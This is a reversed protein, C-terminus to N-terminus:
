TILLHFRAVASGNREIVLEYVGAQSFSISQWQIWLTEAWGAHQAQVSALSRTAVVSGRPDRLVLSFNHSGQDLIVQTLTHFSATGRRFGVLMDQAHFGGDREQIVRAAFVHNIVRVQASAESTLVVGFLCVALLALALKPLPFRM